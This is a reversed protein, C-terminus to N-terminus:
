ITTTAGRLAVTFMGSYRAHKPALPDPNLNPGSQQGVEYVPTGGLDATNELSRMWAAVIQFLDIARGQWPSGGRSAYVDVSVTAVDTVLDRPGGGIREFIVFVDPFAPPRKVFFEVQFSVAGPLVAGAGVRLLDEVDPFVVLQSM